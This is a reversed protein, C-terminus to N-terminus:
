AALPESRRFAERRFSAPALAPRPSQPVTFYLAPAVEDRLRQLAYTAADIQRSASHQHAHARRARSQSELLIAAVRDWQETASLCPPAPASVPMAAASGTRSISSVWRIADRTRQVLVGYRPQTRM